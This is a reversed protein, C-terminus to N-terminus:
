DTGPSYIRNGASMYAQLVEVAEFRLVHSAVELGRKELSQIWDTAKPGEDFGIAEVDTRDAGYVVRRVGSWPIAGFCQSCPEASTVLEFDGADSLNYTSVAQEALVLAVIEAHAVSCATPIVLNVGPAVLKHTNMCFVGAGFPGGGHSINIRSLGIVLKMRDEDTSYVADQDLLFETVYPPLRLCFEPFGMMTDGNIKKQLISQLRCQKQKFIETYTM